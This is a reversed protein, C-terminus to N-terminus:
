KGAQLVIQLKGPNDVSLRSRIFLGIGALFLVILVCYFLYDPVHVGLPGFVANVLDVWPSPHELAEVVPLNYRIECGAPLGSVATALGVYGAGIMAIKMSLFEVCSTAAPSSALNPSASPPM